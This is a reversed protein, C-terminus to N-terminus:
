YNICNNYSDNASLPYNNLLMSLNVINTQWLGGNNDKNPVANRMRECSRVSTASLLPGDNNGDFETMKIKFINNRMLTSTFKKEDNIELLPIILDRTLNAHMKMTILVYSLIDESNTPYLDNYGRIYKFNIINKLYIQFIPKKILHAIRLQHDSYDEAFLECLNSCKKDPYKEQWNILEDQLAAYIWDFYTHYLIECCLRTTWIAHTITTVNENAFQECQNCSIMGEYPLFESLIILNRKDIYLIAHYFCINENLPYRIIRKIFVIVDYNNMLKCLIRKCFIGYIEIRTTNGTLTEKTLSMKKLQLPIISQWEKCNLNFDNYFYINPRIFNNDIIVFQYIVGKNNLLSFEFFFDSNILLQVYYYPLEITIFKIAVILNKLILMELRQMNICMQVIYFKNSTAVYAHHVQLNIDLNDGNRVIHYNEFNNDDNDNIFSSKKISLSQQQVRNSENFLLANPMITQNVKTKYISACIRNIQTDSLNELRSKLISIDDAKVNTLNYKEKLKEVNENKGMLGHSLSQLYIDVCDAPMGKKLLIPKANVLIENLRIQESNSWYYAIMNIEEQQGNSFSSLLKNKSSYIICHLYEIPIKEIQVWYMVMSDYINAAIANTKRIMLKYPWELELPPPLVDSFYNLHLSEVKCFLIFHNNIRYLYSQISKYM